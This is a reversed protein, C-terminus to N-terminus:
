ADDEEYWLPNCQIINNATSGNTIKVVYTTDRKLVVENAESTEQGSRSQGQGTGGGIFTQNILTGEDTVTVGDRVLVVAVNSSIRNHNVPTKATGTAATVTADEFLEVTVKDASCQVKENRYHIYKGNGPTVISIYRSASTALTNKTLAVYLNGEHIYAHDTTISQQAKTVREQGESLITNTSEQTTKSSELIASMGEQTTKTSEVAETTRIQSM